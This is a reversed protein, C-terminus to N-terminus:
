STFETHFSDKIYNSLQELLLKQSANISDDHNLEEIEKLTETPTTRFKGKYDVMANNQESPHVRTMYEEFDNRLMEPIADIYNRYLIRQALGRLEKRRFGAAIVAKEPLPAAHFQRCQKEESKSLFGMQYLAADADVDPIDPYRFQQHFQIVDNFISEHNLLWALNDEAVKASESSLQQWFRDKPPLIFPPEGFRKRFVWSNEDVSDSTLNQLETQDLRLWLSQNSYPISNGISLVPAHYNSGPGLEHSVLLGKLHNGNVTQFTTPLDSIRKADMKKEFYATLYQWIEKEKSFLKALAVTAEVDAMADHARGQTLRNLESLLELKLSPRGDVDPWNLVEKKYLRYIVAFPLIDMRRCGNNYQHTYPPLLNRHFSFRLFEDDFGLSNYGVSITDPTNLLQHIQKTAEYEVDGIGADELSIQHTILARPSMVIDPRLRVPIEYRKIEKLHLDTRIAAFRLVQDFAKNLGTTELDYFLYTHM